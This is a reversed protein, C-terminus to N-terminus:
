EKGSSSTLYKRIKHLRIRNLSIETSLEDIITKAREPSTVVHVEKWALESLKVCETTKRIVKKLSYDRQTADIVTSVRDGKVIYDPASKKLSFSEGELSIEEPLKPEEGKLLNKAKSLFDNRIAEHTLSSVAGVGFLDVLKEATEITVMGGEREYQSVMKRSLKLLYSAEGLSLDHKLRENRIFNRNVVLYLDGKRYLAIIESPKNYLNELTRENMLYIGEREYVINDYLLSDDSVALPVSGLAMSAKILDDAEERTVRSGTKIRLVVNRGNEDIAILDISRERHSAPYKLIAYKKGARDLTDTVSSLLRGLNSKKIGERMMRENFM